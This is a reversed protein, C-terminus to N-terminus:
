QFVMPVVDSVAHRIQTNDFTGIGFYYTANVDSLNVDHEADGTDLARGIEAEYWGNRWTTKGRIDGRSGTLPRGIVGPLITGAPFAMLDEFSTIELAEDRDIMDQTIIFVNPNGPVYFGPGQVTNGDSDTFDRVSNYYGGEVEGQPDSHRGANGSAEPDRADDLYQDDVQSPTTFNTRVYKLHWMDLREGVPASKVPRDYGLEEADFEDLYTPYFSGDEVVEPASMVWLFALKDEYHVNAGGESLPTKDQQTWVNGDFVWRQRDISNTPDAWRVRFFVDTDTYVAQLRVTTESANAADWFGEGYTQFEIVPADTWFGESPMGDIVPAFPVKMAVLPEMQALGAGSILLAALVTLFRTNM